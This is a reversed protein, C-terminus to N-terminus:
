RGKTNRGRGARFGHDSARRQQGRGDAEGGQQQDQNEGGCAAVAAVLLLVGVFAGRNLLEELLAVLEHFAAVPGTSFVTELAQNRLIRVTRVGLLRHDFAGVGLVLGALVVVRHGANVAEDPGVRGM